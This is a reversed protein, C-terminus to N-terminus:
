CHHFFIGRAVEKKASEKEAQEAAAAVSLFKHHDLRLVLTSPDTSDWHAHM